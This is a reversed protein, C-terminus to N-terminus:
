PGYLPLGFTKVLFVAMQARTVANSPCYASAGCGSTVAEHFLQEIWDAAFAPTPTCAVDGFIGTCAPPVYSSGHEAKLLFVAMQARNVPDTPCYLRPAASCGGTIGSNYLQEIWDVAFGGPCPVDEFLGTCPPPLHGGGLGAKLLLIAMQARTVSATPCFSGEGCGSSVRARGIACVYAYFPDSPPEDAFDVLLSQRTSGACGSANTEVLSLSMLTGPSGSTFGIASTGQGSDITGGGLTWAYRDDINGPASAVFGSTGAPVCRPVMLSPAPAPSCAALRYVVGAGGGGGGQATGYLAGDIGQTLGAYPAVGDRGSFNRLVTVNGSSDMRFITGDFSTGGYSTTGYFNGDAGQVLPARPNAGDSLAFNYLTALHGSLNMKFITGLGASGGGVTTGYLNGDTAQILGASPGAGDSGNFLHITTFSGSPDIRYVSGNGDGGGPTTGYLAGDTALIPASEPSAGEDPYGAFSHLVTETGMPDIKFAAGQGNTGGNATTGYLSGDATQLLGGFPNLADGPYGYFSYLVSFEGTPDMKFATGSSSAGGGITTGYFDGDTGQILGATPYSGDSPTTFNSFTHLTTLKRSPDLRFVTGDNQSGGGYTTGYLSGDAAQTVGSYSLTGESFGFVHLTTFTGASDIKFVTGYNFAFTITTGYFDGDASRLLAASPNAGDDGQFNHLWTLNGQLDLKFVAGVGYQSGLTTGYLTGDPAQVLGALPVTGGLLSRLTTLNGSSDIKFITGGNSAGGDSTTGYFDGDIGQILGAPPHAGDSGVFSHLTTLSGSADLKFVTGYASAGGLNTTGYFSGDAAQFLGGRPNAGDSGTFHHLPTVNGSLDMRFVTGLDGPGGYLTTGYLDGDAAEILAATPGHGDNGAFSHLTTLTGSADLKFTTGLNNAGGGRTTGYFNGDSAQLLGGAPYAGDGAGSFSYVTVLNGQSDTRYVAGFNQAGGATTTGYFKGDSAQILPSAPNAGDLIFTHLVEFSQAVTIAPSCLGTGLLAAFVWRRSHPPGPASAVPQTLM